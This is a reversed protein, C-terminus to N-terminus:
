SRGPWGPFTVVRRALRSFMRRAASRCPPIGSRESMGGHPQCRPHRHRGGVGGAERDHDPLKRDHSALTAAARHRVPGAIGARDQGLVVAAEMGLRDSRRVSRWGFETSSRRIRRPDDQWRPSQGTAALDPVAVVKRRPPQRAHRDSRRLYARHLWNRCTVTRSITRCSTTITWGRDPIIASGSPVTTRPRPRRSGSGMPATGSYPSYRPRGGSWGRCPQYRERNRPGTATANWALCGHRGSRVTAGSRHTGAILRETRRAPAM